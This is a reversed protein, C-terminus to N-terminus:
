WYNNLDRHENLSNTDYKELKANYNIEHKFYKDTNNSDYKIFHDKSIYINLNNIDIFDNNLNRKFTFVILDSPKVEKMNIEKIKNLSNESKNKIKNMLKEYKSGFEYNGRFEAKDFSNFGFADTEYPDAGNALLYKTALENNYEIALHLPTKYFPGSHSNVDVKIKKIFYHLAPLCNMSAALQIASMDNYIIENEIYDNSLNLTELIDYNMHTTLIKYIKNRKSNYLQNPSHKVSYPSFTINDLTPLFTIEQLGSSNKSIYKRISHPFLNHWGTPFFQTNFPYFGFNM